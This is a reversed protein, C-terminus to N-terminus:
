EGDDAVIDATYEYATNGESDLLASLTVEYGIAEANQYTVEGVETIKANPIVIRRVKNGTLLLEIVYVWAGRDKGNHIVTGATVNDAGWVQRLVDENLSEIFTWSFTESRSTNIVLVTDGGMEKIGEQDTEFANTIGDESVYGLGVFDDALESTADVPLTTGIPAAFLVGTAMPKGVSVNAANPVSIAM